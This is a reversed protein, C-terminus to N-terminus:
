TLPCGDVRVAGNVLMSRKFNVTHHNISLNRVCGTYSRKMKLSVPLAIDPTGGIYVPVLVSHKEVPFRKRMVHKQEGDVDLRLGSIDRVVKVRHWNGDCINDRPPVNVTYTENDVQVFVQGHQLYISLNEEPTISFHLLLASTVRPRLEMVVELQGDLSLFQDLVTYGGEEFFFMGAESAGEFCPTVGFSRPISSLFHGNLRLDRVCGSFGSRVKMNKTACAAPVGGVNLPDQLKLTFNLLNEEMVMVGDVLLLARDAHRNFVVEHWSGDNYTHTSHLQLVHRASGFTFFLKGHSLFLAMFDEDDDDGQGCVCVIVGQESHTRVSMSFESRERIVEAISDYEHRSHGSFYHGNRVAGPHPSLSCPTTKKEPGVQPGDQVGLISQPLIPTMRWRQHLAVPTHPASHTHDPTHRASRTHRVATPPKQLPCDQLSVGVNKSYRQFDEAEVDRDQRSIYAYSICGTFNNINSHVSGGYYFEQLGDTHPGSGPNKKEQRDRDDVVLQFKNKTVSAVLFHPRGDSYHKKSKVKTGRSHLVVAGNELSLSFEDTGDRHYFLLGSPQTTRFSMGGEFSSLPSIKATSSLYGDGTFYAKRSMFSEEPCGSSIGITGPEELLNFDKKQFQFGKVCGKLGILSSFEPRSHLVDSPVGGIYIDNFPLTKKENETSKVFSRDVLLIVKKSQHYIVSVEHYRADNIQLKTLNGELVIPGNAFGFDYVLRLFGNRIELVFFQGENVMLFLVGDHAVTRVEIDFRTVVSIRGRREINRVLAYGSGDFLYSAVRGQSFALKYRPCPKSVEVDMEHLKKFNYLSIVDNNLSALEICGVFPALSLAPPLKIDPPAGGIIFVTDRPDLHFLSETGDWEGKQIFKQEAVAEQSPVTLYVKGHRGLREVRVHNFVPPWSSVPKSSLPIEVDDGGLNYVFVLNDNKIAVGMYDKRGNKDGLYLLFRDEIPDSDPDVRVYLSISTVVKLEEVDAPPHLEVSSQGNFKMSVQVKSAVSRAQAILERVRMINTSVNVPKKEEVDHLKTLLQPIIASLDEVTNRASDVAQEYASTSYQNNRMNRSWEEVQERIPTVVGLVEASHNLAREAAEQTSQLKRVRQITNMNKVHEELTVRSTQLMDRTEEIYKKTDTVTTDVETYESNRTVSEKFMDSSQTKLSNLQSKLAGLADETRISMNLTSASIEDSENIYKVINDYVKSADLAKQVFGHTDSGRLNHQLEHAHRQLDQAHETARQVLNHDAKSLQDTREQILVAAGDVEAHYETVNKVMTDLDAVGVAANVLTDNAEMVTQNVANYNKMLHHKNAERRQLHLLNHSHTNHTQQLTDHAKHLFIQGHTLSSSFRKMLQRVAPVRGEMLLVSKEMQRVNQLLQHTHTNEQTALSQKPTLNVGRMHSLMHEAESEKQNQQEPDVEQQVRYVEWDSIMDEILVNLSTLNAALMEALTLSRLTDSDVQKGVSMVGEEQHTLLETDTQLHVTEEELEGTHKRLVASKNRWGVFQVSLTHATYNYYKLRDHAAAGTSINLVSNRLQDVTKNSQRVDGILHWICEDCDISCESVQSMEPLCEGTHVDCNGEPCDCKKCGTHTYDWYGPLCRDCYRGGAGPRCQCAQTLTNCSSHLAASACECKRCGMCSSFGSHGDECRDCLHGTVGPKCHCVGTRDDCSATGCQNCECKRCDKASIADGYYGHACRECNHGATNHYCHLCQGTVNHCENFILNPDSNGNCDCKKCSDGARIPNGYYGPACRECYHGAYGDQCVCRLAAGRVDCHTAFNNSESAVPCACPRCEHQGDHSVQLVYGDECRECFDGTSHDQCDICVGTIDECDQAHGKCNCPLCIHQESLFFGRTCVTYVPEQQAFLEPFVCSFVVLLVVSSMDRRRDM